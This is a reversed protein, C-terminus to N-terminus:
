VHSKISSDEPLHSTDNLGLILPVMNDDFHLKSISTNGLRIRHYMTMNWNFIGILAAKIIGGHAVVAINKDKNETVIKLLANTARISAEKLSHDGGCLPGTTDDMIWKKFPEPYNNRIDKVTLGEWEGFDIERLEPYIIPNLDTGESIIEATKLARKLPSCYIYDFNKELRKKLFEAQKIGENSLDIDKSGQFKGLANWETEGHRILMISTSM